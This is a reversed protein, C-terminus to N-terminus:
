FSDFKTLNRIVGWERVVFGQSSFVPIVPAELGIDKSDCEQVIYLLRLISDPQQSFELNIIPDIQENYQPYIAYFDSDNLSPDLLYIFDEIERDIFGTQKMNYRLFSEM